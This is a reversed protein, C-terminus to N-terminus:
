PALKGTPMKSLKAWSCEKCEDFYRSLIKYGPRTQISYRVNAPVIVWDGESYEVGNLVFSGSLVYRLVPEDHEHEPIITLPDVNTIIDINWYSCDVPIFWKEVEPENFLKHKCRSMWDGNLYNKSSVISTLKTPDIILNSELDCEFQPM